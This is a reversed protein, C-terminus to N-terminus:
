RRYREDSAEMMELQDLKGALMDQLLPALGYLCSAAQRRITTM